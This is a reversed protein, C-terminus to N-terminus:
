VLSGPQKLYKAIGEAARYSLATMTGTPNYGSNHPFASAGVVFVNEADWMQLFSNVASTKPDAGMVVGGTNHTSQYPVINYNTMAASTEMKTPNMEKMIAATKTALFKVMERDQDEFDYTIRILPIGNVDKYEPDLDM